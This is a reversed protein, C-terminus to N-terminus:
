VPVDCPPLKLLHQMAHLCSALLPPLEDSYAHLSQIESLYPKCASISQALGEPQGDSVVETNKIVGIIEILAVSGIKGTDLAPEVLKENAM